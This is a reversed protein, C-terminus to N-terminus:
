VYVRLARAQYALLPVLRRASGNGLYRPVCFLRGVRRAKFRDYAGYELYDRAKHRIASM